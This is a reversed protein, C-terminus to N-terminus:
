LPVRVMDNLGFMVTVLHPRHALVDRDLRKLADVTSNGSIGANIATVEAQPFAKRIALPVMEPYARRGGTHYYVGTVSDGLCVIKLPQRKELRERTGPLAAANIVPAQGGTPQWAIALHVVGLLLIAAYVHALRM